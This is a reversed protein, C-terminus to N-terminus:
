LAAGASAFDALAAREDADDVLWEAAGEARAAALVRSLASAPGLARLHASHFVVILRDVARSLAVNLLRAADPNHLDDLFRPPTGPAEVTDFIVLSRERGQFRHVSFVEVRGQELLTAAQARVLRRIRRVQARYPAIVAVDRQTAALIALNAVLSAHEANSKSGSSSPASTASTRSTDALAIAQGYGPRQAVAPANHLRGAYFTRSVVAAIRPHMRWQEDLMVRLPHDSEVRDCGASAFVHTGLWRRVLPDAAQAIPALQLFDGVAVVRRTALSAAAFASVLPAMSAEDIIVTHPRLGKSLAATTARTLTTALVRAHGVVALEVAQLETILCAVTLALDDPDSGDEEELLSVALRLRRPLPVAESLLVSAKRLHRRAAAACVRGIERVSHSSRSRLAADVAGDLDVGRGALDQGCPGLRLAAGPPLPATELVRLLATDTAVNTHAAILVQEGRALLTHALSALTRTKGTGPPGWIYAISQGLVREIAARQSPSGTESPATQALGAPADGSLLALGLQPSFSPWPSAENTGSAEAILRLRAALLELLLTPDFDIWGEPVVAGLDQRLVIVIGEEDREHRVVEGGASEGDAVLRVPTGEPVPIDLTCAFRYLHAGPEELLRRGAVVRVRRKDGLPGLRARLEARDLRLAELMQGVVADLAPASPM